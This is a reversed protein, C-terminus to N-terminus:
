LRLPLWIAATVGKDPRNAIEFLGDHQRAVQNVIALGTGRRMGKTTYFPDVLQIFDNTALGPGDDSVQLLAGPQLQLQGGLAMKREELGLSISIVGTSNVAEAANQLLESVASELLAQQGPVSLGAQAIEVQFVLTPWVPKYVDVINAILTALEVQEDPLEEAFAYSRLQRMLRFAQDVGIQASRVDSLAEEPLDPAQEILELRGNLIQLINNFDHAIKRTLADLAKYRTTQWLRYQRLQPNDNNASM